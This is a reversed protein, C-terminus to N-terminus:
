ASWWARALRSAGAEAVARVRARQSFKPVQWAGCVETRGMGAEASFLSRGAEASVVTIIYLLGLGSHSLYRFVFHGVRLLSLSRVQGLEIDVQGSLPMGDNVTSWM